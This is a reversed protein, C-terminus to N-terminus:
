LEGDRRFPVDGRLLEGDSGSRVHEAAPAEGEGNAGSEVRTRSGEICAIARDISPTTTSVKEESRAKAVSREGGLTAAAVRCDAYNVPNGLPEWLDAADALCEGYRGRNEGVASM